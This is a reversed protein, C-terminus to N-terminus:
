ASYDPGSSGVVISTKAIATERAGALAKLEADARYADFMAQSPFSVVHVEFPQDTTEVSPPAVRIAREVVGGHRRMISAANREYAEFEAVRGAHIWLSAVIFVRGTM